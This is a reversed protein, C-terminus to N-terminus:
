GRTLTVLAEFHFTSPFLDLLVVDKIKYDGLEQVRQLDRVMTQPHCSIYCINKPSKERVWDKIHPFGARPPDIIFTEVEKNPFQHEFTSLAEEEHLNLSFFSSNPTEKYIDIVLRQKDYQESLNGGGGFLDLIEGPQVEDLYKNLYLKMKENMEPNVQTFGGSAYRENWTKILGSPSDYIEVHGSTPSQAQNHWSNNKYLEQLENTINDQAIKCESVPIIKNTKGDKFGLVQAKKHYHLQIRNRYGLRKSSSIIDVEGTYKILQLMRKFSSEKFSLETKYDTHLFHCGNCTQFHPCLDDVRDPSKQYLVELECFHVGKKKKLIRATGSEGPLTKPIFYIKDDQKFVGQGLPDIHDIIFEIKNIVTM